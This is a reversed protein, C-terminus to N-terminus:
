RRETWKLPFRPKIIDDHTIKYKYFCHRLLKHYIKCTNFYEEETDIIIKVNGDIVASKLVEKNEFRNFKWGFHKQYWGDEINYVPVYIEIPSKLHHIDYNMEMVDFEKRFTICYVAEDTWIGADTAMNISDMRHVGESVILKDGEKYLWFPFYNGNELIDLALTIKDDIYDYLYGDKKSIEEWNRRGDLSLTIESPHRYEGRFVELSLNYMYCDYFTEIEEKSYDKIIDYRKESFM